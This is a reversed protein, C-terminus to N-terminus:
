ENASKTAVDKWEAKDEKSMAKWTERLTKTLEKGKLGTDRSIKSRNMKAWFNFPYVRKVKKKKAPPPDKGGDNKCREKDKKALEAWKGIAKTEKAIRWLRGLESMVERHTLTEDGEKVKARMEKCFFNYATKSKAKAKAKSKKITKIIEKLGAIDATELENNSFKISGGFNSALERIEELLKARKESTKTKAKTKTKAPGKEGNDMQAREKDKKALEKWKSTDGKKAEKWRKGLEVMIDRGKMEPNSDKIRIREEACFFIYASKARKKNSSRRKRKKGQSKSGLLKALDSQKSEWLKVLMEHTVDEGTDAIKQAIEVMYRNVLENISKMMDLTQTNKAM